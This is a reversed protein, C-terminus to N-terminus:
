SSSKKGVITHMFMNRSCKIGTQNIINIVVHYDAPSVMIGKFVPEMPERPGKWHNQHDYVNCYREECKPPLPQSWVDGRTQPKVAARLSGSLSTSDCLAM